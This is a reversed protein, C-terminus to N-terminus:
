GEEEVLYCMVQDKSVGKRGRKAEASCHVVKPPPLELEEACPILADGASNRPIQTRDFTWLAAMKLHPDDAVHASSAPCKMAAENAPTQLPAEQRSAKAGGGPIGGTKTANTCESTKARLVLKRFKDNRVLPLQVVDLRYATDILAMLPSWKDGPKAPLAGLAEAFQIDERAGRQDARTTPGVKSLKPRARAAATEIANIMKRTKDHNRQGSGPCPGAPATALGSNNGKSGRGGSVVTAIGDALWASEESAHKKGTKPRHTIFLIMALCHEPSCMACCEQCIKRVIPEKKAAILVCAEEAVRSGQGGCIADMLSERARTDDITSAMSQMASESSSERGHASADDGHM